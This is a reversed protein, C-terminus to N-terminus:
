NDQEDNIIAIEKYKRSRLDDCIKMFDYRDCCVGEYYCERQSGIEPDVIFFQQIRDNFFLVKHFCEDKYYKRESAPSYVIQWDHINRYVATYIHLAEIANNLENEKKSSLMYIMNLILIAITYAIAEDKLVLHRKKKRSKDIFFITNETQAHLIESYAELWESLYYRNIQKNKFMDLAKLVTELNYYKRFPENLDYPTTFNKIEGSKGEEWNSELANFEELDDISCTLNCIRDYLQRMEEDFIRAKQPTNEDDEDPYLSDYGSHNGLETYDQAKLSTELNRMEDKTIEKAEFKDKKCNFGDDYIRIFQKKGHNIFLIWSECIDPYDNNDPHGIDDDDYFEDDPAFYSEWEPFSRYLKDLDIFTKAYKEIDHEEYDYDEDFFTLSDLIDTIVSKILEKMPLTSFTDYYGDVYSEAHLIWLYACAWHALYTDTIKGQQYLGIAKLINDLSYYKDFSNDVDYEHEELFSCFMELEKEYCEVACIREILEKNYM